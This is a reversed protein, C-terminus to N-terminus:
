LPDLSLLLDNSTERQASFLYQLPAFSSAAEPCGPRFEPCMKLAPKRAYVHNRPSLEYMGSSEPLFGTTLAAWFGPRHIRFLGACAPCVCPLTSQLNRM